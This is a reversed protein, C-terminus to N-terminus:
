QGGRMMGSILPALSGLPNQNGAGQTMGQMTQTMGGMNGGMGLAQMLMPSLQNIDFQQPQQPQQQQPQQQPQSHKQTEKAAMEQVSQQAAKTQDQPLMGNVLGQMVPGALTGAGPLLLNGGISGAMGALAGWDM